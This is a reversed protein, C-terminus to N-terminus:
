SASEAMGSLVDRRLASPDATMIAHLMSKHPGDYDPLFALEIGSSAFAAPEYLSRGGPLNIYRTAGLRELIALVRDQGTLSRDIELASSRSFKVDLALLGAVLRLGQELYDTLNELPGYLHSRVAQAPDGSAQRIWDFNALREDFSARAGDTFAIESIPTERPSYAIPLTLWQMVGSPGPVETRHIRGRRRFQVCDFLVFEDVQALLRFYGAYPFFYPQM